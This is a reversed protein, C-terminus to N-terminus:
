GLGLRDAKGARQVKSGRFRSIVPLQDLCAGKMAGIAMFVAFVNEPHSRLSFVSM